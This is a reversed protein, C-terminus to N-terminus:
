RQKALVEDLRRRAKAVDDELRKQRAFYADTLRSAGGATGLREGPLPEQGGDRAAEAAKLEARAEAIESDLDHAKGRQRGAADSATKEAPTLTTVGTRAPPPTLTEVKSAGPAPEAGYIVRGDPMTSKYVPQASAPLAIAMVALSAVLWQVPKM